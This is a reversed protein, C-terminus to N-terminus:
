PERKNLEEKFYRILCMKAYETNIQAFWDITAHHVSVSNQEEPDTPLKPAYDADFHVVDGDNLETKLPYKYDEESFEPPPCDPKWTHIRADKVTCALDPNIIFAFDLATAGFPVCRSYKRYGKRPSYSYVTIQPRLADGPAEEDIMTLREGQPNGIFYAELGSDAVLILRYNNEYRDTLRLILSDRDRGVYQLFIGQPKLHRGYLELFAKLMSSPEQETCSLIVEFLDLRCREFDEPNQLQQRLEYPLLIRRPSAQMWEEGEQRFGRLRAFPNFRPYSFRDDQEIADDLLQDFRSYIPGGVRTLENRAEQIRTSENDWYEEGDFKLCLDSLLVEFYRMGLMRAAPILFQRTSAIKEM